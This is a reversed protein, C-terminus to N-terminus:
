LRVNKCIPTCSFRLLLLGGLSKTRGLYFTTVRREFVYANDATDDSAPGPEPLCLLESLATPLFQYNARETGGVDHWRHIFQDVADIADVPEPELTQLQARTKIDM